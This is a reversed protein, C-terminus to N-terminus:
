DREIICMAPRGDPGNRKIYLWQHKKLAMVASSVFRTDVGGIEGFRERNRRDGDYAFFLHSAQNYAWLPVHTPKQTAGWLGTGMSRGKSWVTILEDPLKLEKVLSFLEDAFLIRQGKKYSDLIARRFIYHHAVNDLKPDFTHRPWLMWGSPKQTWPWQPTPPWNDVVRYNLRDVWKDVTEDQPKMVLSVAPLKETTTRQLLQFALTTKGYDTPGIFTVHEGPRYEWRTEIFDNRPFTVLALDQTDM